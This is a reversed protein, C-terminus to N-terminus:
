WELPETLIPTVFGAVGQAGQENEEWGPLSQARKYWDNVNEYKELSFGFAVATSVTALLSFDAISVQAGAAWFGKKLYKNLTDIADVVRQKAEEGIVTTQKRM